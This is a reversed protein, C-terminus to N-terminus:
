KVEQYKSKKTKLANELLFLQDKDLENPNNQPKQPTAVIMKPPNKYRSLDMKIGNVSLMGADLCAAVQKEDNTEDTFNLQKADEATMWTEATMLEVIKEHSQGTREQYIGIISEEIKDLDDAMKRFDDSNGVAITWAKHVMLMANSPMIRNDGVMFILSAASAALGDVYTNKTAKHRKLMSYIAHAAFVDGGDSNIYINLTDIDGLADLDKKFQKPTVEDGWWSSSSIIGYLLLEGVKSDDQNRFQWFKNKAMTEVEM